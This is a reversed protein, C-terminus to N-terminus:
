EFQRVFRTVIEATKRPERQLILHPGEVAEVVADPKIRLIEELCSVGVLWDSQAQLYLIPVSVRALQMRVDCALVERLRASLVMPRASSVAARVALLLSRPADLGILLRRAALEPLTMWFLIPALSSCIWRRWGRVPASVFGACLVLGLLHPPNTSAYRIALPTSFSEALLVFPESNPMASRILTAMELDSLCVDPPYRVVKTEIEGPLAAVFDQFLAGTGDMGPLLVIRLRKLLL